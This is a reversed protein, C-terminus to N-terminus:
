TDNKCKEYITDFYINADYIIVVLSISLCNTFM